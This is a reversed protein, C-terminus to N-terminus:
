RRGWIAAASLLGLTLGGFALMVKRDATSVAEPLEPGVVTTTTTTTPEAGAVGPAVVLALALFLAAVATM